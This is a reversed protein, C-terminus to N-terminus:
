PRRTWRRLQRKAPRATEALESKLGELEKMLKQLAKDLSDIVNKLEDILKLYPGGLRWEKLYQYFTTGKYVGVIEQLGKPEGAAVHRAAEEATMHGNGKFPDLWSQVFKILNKIHSM